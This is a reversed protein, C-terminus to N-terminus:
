PDRAPEASLITLLRMVTGGFPYATSVYYLRYRAGHSFAQAVKDTVIFHRGEIDFNPADSGLGRDEQPNFLVHGEVSQAHEPPQWRPKRARSAGWVLSLTGWFAMLGSFCLATVVEKDALPAPLPSARVLAFGLCALAGVLLVPGVIVAIRHNLEEYGRAKEGWQAFMALQAESPRGGRNAALDQEGFGIAEELSGATDRMFAHLLM